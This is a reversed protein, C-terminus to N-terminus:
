AHLVAPDFEHLLDIPFQRRARLDALMQRLIPPKCLQADKMADLQDLHFWRVDLIEHGDPRPFGDLTQGLFLFRLTPKGSRGAFHYLGALGSIRVGCGTEERTERFAADLLLEDAGVKGGPLNWRQRDTGLAQQVMLIHTDEVIATSVIAKFWRHTLGLQLPDRTTSM